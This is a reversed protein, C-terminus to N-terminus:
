MVCALTTQSNPIEILFIVGDPQLCTQPVNEKKYKKLLNM